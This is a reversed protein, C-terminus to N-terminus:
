KKKLAEELNFFDAFHLEKHAKKLEALSQISFSLPQLLYRKLLEFRVHRYAEKQFDKKLLALPEKIKTLFEQPLTEVAQIFSSLEDSLFKKAHVGEYLCLERAAGIVALDRGEQLGREFLQKSGCQMIGQFVDEFTKGDPPSLFLGFELLLNFADDDYLSEKEKVFDQLALTKIQQFIDNEQPIVIKLLDSYLSTVSSVMEKLKGKLREKILPDTEHTMQDYKRVLMKVLPEKKYRLLLNDKALESGKRERLVKSNWQFLLHHFAEEYAVDSTSAKDLLEKQLNWYSEVLIDLSKPFLNAGLIGEEKPCDLLISPKGEGIWQMELRMLLSASEQHGQTHTDSRGLTMNYLNHIPLLPTGEGRHFLRPNIELMRKVIPFHGKTVAYHFPLKKFCDSRYLVIPNTELCLDVIEKRGEEAAIHIPLKDHSDQAYLHGKDVELSKLFLDKWGWKAAYHIPINLRGSCQHHPHAEVTLFFEYLAKHGMEGAIDSPLRNFHDAIVLLKPFANLFLQVLAINGMQSAVHIPLEGYGNIQCLLEPDKTYIMQAIADQRKSIAYHLPPDSETGQRSELTEPYKQILKEVIDARGLRIARFLLPKSLALEKRDLTSEVIDAHGGKLSYSLFYKAEKTQYQKPSEKKCREIFDKRGSLFALHTGCWQGKKEIEEDSDESEEDSKELSNESSFDTLILDSIKKVKKALLLLYTEALSSFIKQLDNQTGKHGLLFLAKINRFFLYLSHWKGDAFLHKQMLAELQDKKQLTEFFLNIIPQPDQPAEQKPGFNLTPTGDPALTRTLSSHEPFFFLTFFSNGIETPIM